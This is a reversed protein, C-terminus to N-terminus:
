WKKNQCQRYHEWQAKIREEKEKEEKAQKRESAKDKVYKTPGDDGLKRAEDLVKITGDAAASLAKKAGKSTTEEAKYLIQCGAMIGLGAIGTALTKAGNKAISGAVSSILGM